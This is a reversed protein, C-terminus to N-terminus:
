ASIIRDRGEEKARYLADDAAKLLHEPTDGNDPFVAIGISLTVAGLLQGGHQANLQKIDERLLEARKRAADLSAGALVFAFEEGGYRCVVDQGRTSEKLLNGLARLLADGAQHGFTDNFRKFHDIDLMLLAVQQKGRLARRLERELSEEMFRRNFLGTLPDRSSQSRLIDRLRLNALALSIREAVATAQRELVEMQDPGAKVVSGAPESVNEVYLVGLTEGQAALPVCVYGNALSKSVHACRLPSASESVRHIKGRRLAWCDNPRFVNETGLVNGWSAVMEVVDRSPSTIHLAGAASRLMGNLANATITYAEEANQCSQLIDVLEALKAANQIQSNLEELAVSLKEHAERLAEDKHKRETVDRVIGQLYEGEPTIVRNLSVEADFPTGDHRAHKWEFFQPLGRLAAQIKEAAKEPSLRGDPQASPSFDSPSHGVIDEKRCGFLTQSQLNCDLFKGENITLIADGATEFLIKFKTESQKLQNEKERLNKEARKGETIDILVGVYGVLKGDPGYDPRSWNDVWSVRGDAYQFRHEIALSGKAEIAVKWSESVRVRDDPHITAMWGDGLAAEQSIGILKCCRESLYIARGSADARYIGVPAVEALTRFSLEAERLQSEMRKRDSIDQGVGFSGIVSGEKDKVPGVSLLIPFDSGDGRSLLCEGRWGEDELIKESIERVLAPPNNALVIGFTKGILDEKSYGLVQLFARNAFIFHGERDAMGIFESSHEVADGLLHNQGECHSRVGPNQQSAIIEEPDTTAIANAAAELAVSKLESLHEGQVCGEADDNHQQEHPM